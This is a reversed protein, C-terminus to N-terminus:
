FLAQNVLPLGFLSCLLVHKYIPISSAFNDRNLIFILAMLSCLIMILTKTITLKPKNNSNMWRQIERSSYVMQWYVSTLIAIHILGISDTKVYAKLYFM